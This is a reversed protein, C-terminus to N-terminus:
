WKRKTEFLQARVARKKGAGGWRIPAGNTETKSNIQRKFACNPLSSTAQEFGHAARHAGLVLQGGLPRFHDVFVETFISLLRGSLHFQEQETLGPVRRQKKKKQARNLM